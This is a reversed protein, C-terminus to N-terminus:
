TEDEKRNQRNQIKRRIMGIYSDVIEDINEERVIGIQALLRRGYNSLAVEEEGVVEDFTHLEVLMHALVAKGPLTSFTLFYSEQLMDRESPPKNMAINKLEKYKETIKGM